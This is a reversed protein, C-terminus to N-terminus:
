LGLSEAGVPGGGLAAMQAETQRQTAKIQAEAARRLRDGFKELRNDIMQQRTRTSGDGFTIVNDKSPMSLGSQKLINRVEAEALSKMIVKVPDAKAGRQATAAIDGNYLKDRAKTKLATVYDAKAADSPEAEGADTLRKVWASLNSSQNNGLYQSLGKVLLAHNNVPAIKSLEITVGSVTITDTSGNTTM